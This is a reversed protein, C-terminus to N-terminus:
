LLVSVPPAESVGAAGQGESPRLDASHSGWVAWSPPIGGSPKGHYHWDPDSKPCISLRGPGQYEQHCRHGAGREEHLGTQPQHGTLMVLPRSSRTTLSGWLGWSRGWSGSGPAVYFVREGASSSDTDPASQSVPLCPVRLSLHGRKGKLLRAPVHALHQVPCLGGTGGWYTICGGVEGDQARTCCHWDPPVKVSWLSRARPMVAPASYTISTLDTKSKLCACFKLVDHSM